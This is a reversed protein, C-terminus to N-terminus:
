KIIHKHVSPVTLCIQKSIKTKRNNNKGKYITYNDMTHYKLCGPTSQKNNKKIYKSQMKRYDCQARAKLQLTRVIPIMM